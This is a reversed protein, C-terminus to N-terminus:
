GGIAELLAAVSRNIDTPDLQIVDIQWHDLLSNQVLGVGQTAYFCRRMGLKQGPTEPTPATRMQNMRYWVYRINPDRFSYGLFLFSHSLLDARLQQDAAGELRMREFFSSETLVITDPDALTGHFKVVEVAAPDRTAQFDELSALTVCKKRADELAGEVHSDYNTTYIRRWALAALARHTVSARRREDAEPSDFRRTMEHILKKLSSRGEIHFYEALQEPTGHIAFLDPEFELREAMWTVLERWTPLNLPKSFGSGLFPILRGERYEKQLLPAAEEITLVAM